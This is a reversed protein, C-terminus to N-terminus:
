NPSIFIKQVLYFEKRFSMTEDISIGTRYSICLNFFIILSGMTNSLTIIEKKLVSVIKDDKEILAKENKETIVEQIKSLFCFFRKEFEDLQCLVMEDPEKEEANDVV